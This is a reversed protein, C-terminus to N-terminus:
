CAAAWDTYIKRDEDTQTKRYTEDMEAKGNSFHLHDFKVQPCYELVGRKNGIETWVNDGYLRDLGPLILWGMERVLDGGIVGHTFQTGGNISDHPYSVGNSGAAKVLEKDWYDTLPVVDDAILGYWENNPWRNFVSNQLSGLTQHRHELILSWGPPLIVARYGNLAPDDHDLIVLGATDAQTKAFADFFRLLNKPRGRSPLVWM